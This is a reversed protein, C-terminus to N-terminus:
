GWTPDDLEIVYERGKPVVLDAVDVFKEEANVSYHNGDHTHGRNNSDVKEM